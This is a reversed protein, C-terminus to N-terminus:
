KKGRAAPTPQRSAQKPTPQGRRAEVASARLAAQLEAEERTAATSRASAQAAAAATPSAASSARRSADMARQLELDDEENYQALEERRQDRRYCCYCLVRYCVFWNYAHVWSDPQNHRKVNVVLLGLVVMIAGFVIMFRLTQNSIELNGSFYENEVEQDVLPYAPQFPLDQVTDTSVVLAYAQPGQTLTTAKVTVRWVTDAVVETGGNDTSYVTIQELNNLAGQEAMWVPYYTQSTNINTLTIDLDNILVDTSGTTKPPDTYALTVRIVGANAGTRVDYDHETGQTSLEVYHGSGDNTAAGKVFLTLPDITSPGFNLVADLQIIGYGKDFSVDGSLIQTSSKRSADAVHTANRTSHVLVAKLLAGSPTFADAATANGVPYYGDMFYQRVLAASGAVLPASMSTGSLLYVDCHLSTSDPTSTSGQASAIYLGPGLLEPKMRGDATPGRSSFNALSDIDFYNQPTNPYFSYFFSDRANVSAGISIGNKNTSPSSVTNPDSGSNGASFLVLADPFNYMFTDVDKSNTSYSNDSATGWSNTIIRAMGNFFLVELLQSDVNPPTNISGSTGTTLDFFAVKSNYAQGNYKQFDGYNTTNYALGAATGCVHTGHYVNGGNVNNDHDDGRGTNYYVVKRHSTVNATDFPYNSQDFLPDHFYCSTLDLGTDSVGIVQGQGTLKLSTVPDDYENAGYLATNTYDGTQVVGKAWRNHLVNPYAREVWMIDPRTSALYDVLLALSSVEEEGNGSSSMWLPIEGISAVKARHPQLGTADLEFLKRGDRAAIRPAVVSHESSMYSTHHTSMARMERARLSELVATVDAVLAELELESMPMVMFRVSMLSYPPENAADEEEHSLADCEQSQAISRAMARATGRRSNRADAAVVSPSVLAQELNSAIRMNHAVPAFEVMLPENEVLEREKGAPKSAVAASLTAAAHIEEMQARTATVLAHRAGVLHYYSDLRRQYHSSDQSIAPSMAAVHKSVDMGMRVRGDRLLGNLVHHCDAAVVGCADSLKVAFVEFESSQSLARSHTSTHQGAKAKVSSFTESSICDLLNSTEHLM